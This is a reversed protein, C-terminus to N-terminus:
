PFHVEKGKEVQPIPVEESYWTNNYCDYFFGHEAEETAYQWM